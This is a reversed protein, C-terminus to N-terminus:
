PCTSDGGIALMRVDSTFSLSGRVRGSKTTTFVIEGNGQVLTANMKWYGTVLRLAAGGNTVTYAHRSYEFHRGHRPSCEVDRLIDENFKIGATQHLYAATTDLLSKLEAGDAPPPSPRDNPPSTIQHASPLSSGSAGCGGLVVLIAFLFLTKTKM